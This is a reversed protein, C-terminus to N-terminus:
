FDPLNGEAQNETAGWDGRRLHDVIEAIPDLEGRYAALWLSAGRATEETGAIECGLV